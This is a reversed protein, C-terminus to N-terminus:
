WSEILQEGSVLKEWRAATSRQTMIVAVATSEFQPRGARGMMQLVELESREKIAGEEM